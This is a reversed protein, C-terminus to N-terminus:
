RICWMSHILHTTLHARLPYPPLAQPPPQNFGRLECFGEITNPSTDVAEWSSWTSFIHFCRLSWLTQGVIENVPRTIVSPHQAYTPYPNQADRAGWGTHGTTVSGRAGKAMTNGELSHGSQLVVQSSMDWWWCHPCTLLPCTWPASKTGSCCTSTSSDFITSATFPSSSSHSNDM